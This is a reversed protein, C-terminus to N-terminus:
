DGEGFRQEYIKTRKWDRIDVMRSEFKIIDAKNQTGCETLGHLM